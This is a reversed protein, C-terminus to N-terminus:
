VYGLRGSGDNLADYDARVDHRKDCNRVEGILKVNRWIKSKMFVHLFMAIGFCLGAIWGAYLSEGFVKRGYVHAKSISRGDAVLKGYITCAVFICSGCVGNLIASAQTMTDRLNPRKQLALVCDQGLVSCTM